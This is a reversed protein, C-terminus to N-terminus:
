VLGHVTVDNLGAITDFRWNSDLSGLQNVIGSKGMDNVTMAGLRVIWLNAPAGSEQAAKLPFPLVELTALYLNLLSHQGSLSCLCSPSAAFASLKARSLCLISCTLTDNLSTSWPYPFLLLTWVLFSIVMEQTVVYM